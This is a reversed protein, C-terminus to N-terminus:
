VLNQDVFTQAFYDPTFAAGDGQSAALASNKTWMEQILAPMNAPMNMATEVANHWSGNGGLSQRLQPAMQVLKQEETPTLEGIARLVYLELLRLLPKGAYRDASM